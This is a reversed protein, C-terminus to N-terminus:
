IVALLIPIVIGALFTVGLVTKNRSYMYSMYLGTMTSLFLGVGVVLFFIKMPLPNHSPGNMAPPRKKDLSAAASAEPIQPKRIPLHPTQKKHIQALIVIWRAPQYGGNKGVDHLSFTQLVGTFAFFLIAPATFVGLYLHLTRATKILSARTISKKNM